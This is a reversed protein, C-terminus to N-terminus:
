TSFHNFFYFVSKKITVIFIIKYEKLEVNVATSPRHYLTIQAVSM